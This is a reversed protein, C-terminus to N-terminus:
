KAYDMKELQNLVEEAATDQDEPKTSRSLLKEAILIALKKMETKGNLVARNKEEGAERKAKNLIKESELRALTIAAKEKEIATSRADILIKEAESKAKEIERHRAENIREIEREAKETLVLGREIKDKRSELHKTIKKFVFRNLLWLVILFNITQAILIKWDIGLNGLLDGM